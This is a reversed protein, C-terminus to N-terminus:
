RVEAEQTSPHCVQVVLDPWFGVLWDVLWGSLVLLWLVVAVVFGFGKRLIDDEALQM